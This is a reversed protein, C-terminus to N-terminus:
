EEEHSSDTYGSDVAVAQRRWWENRRWPWQHHGMTSRWSYMKKEWKKEKEKDESMRGTMWCDSTGHDCACPKAIHENRRENTQMGPHGEEGRPGMLM